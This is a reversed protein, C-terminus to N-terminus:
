EDEVIVSAELGHSLYWRLVGINSCRGEEFQYVTTICCGTEKAIQQVKVGLSLRLRKCADGLKKM